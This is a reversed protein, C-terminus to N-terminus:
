SVKTKQKTNSNEYCESLFLNFAMNEPISLGTILRGIENIDLKRYGLLKRNLTNLSVGIIEAVEKQTINKETMYGLLKRFPKYRPKVAAKRRKPSM